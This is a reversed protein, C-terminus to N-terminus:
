RSGAFRYFGGEWDPTAVMQEALGASPHGIHRMVAAIQGADARHEDHLACEDLYTITRYVHNRYGAVNPYASRRVTTSPSGSRPNM